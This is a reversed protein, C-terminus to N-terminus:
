KIITLMWCMGRWCLAAGTQTCVWWPEPFWVSLHLLDPDNCQFACFCDPPFSSLLNCSCSGAMTCVSQFWPWHRERIERVPGSWKRARNSRTVTCHLWAKEDGAVTRQGFGCMQQWILVLPRELGPPPPLDGVWGFGALFGEISKSGNHVGGGLWCAMCKFRHMTLYWWKRNFHFVQIKAGLWNWDAMASIFQLFRQLRILVYRLM